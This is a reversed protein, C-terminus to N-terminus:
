QLPACELDVTGTKKLPVLRCARLDAIDPLNRSVIHNRFQLTAEFMGRCVRAAKIREYTWASAGGSSGRPLRQLARVLIKATIQVPTTDSVDVDPPGAQPHLQALKHMTELTPEALEAQDLCQAARKISGKKLHGQLRQSLQLDWKRKQARKQKGSLKKTDPAQLKEGGLFKGMLKNLRKCRRTSDRNESLAVPSSRSSAGRTHRLDRVGLGCSRRSLHACWRFSPRAKPGRTYM